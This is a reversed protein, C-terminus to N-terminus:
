AGAGRRSQSDAPCRPRSRRHPWAQGGRVRTREWPRRGRIGCAGAGGAHRASPGWPRTGLGHPPVLPAVLSLHSSARRGRAAQRVQGGATMGGGGALRGRAHGCTFSYRRYTIRSTICWPPSFCGNMMSRLTPTAAAASARPALCRRRQLPLSRRQQRGTTHSRGSGQRGQGHGGEGGGGRGRSPQWRPHLLHEECWLVQGDNHLKRLAAVHAPRAPLM